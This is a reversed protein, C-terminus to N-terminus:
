LDIQSGYDDWKVLCMGEGSSLHQFHINLHSFHSYM